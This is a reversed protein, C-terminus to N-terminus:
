SAHLVAAPGAAHASPSAALLANASPTIVARLVLRRLEERHAEPLLGSALLAAAPPETVHRSRPQASLATDFAGRVARAVSQGGQEIAWRVFRYALAAHRAEDDAIRELLKRLTPNTVHAAAEVAELASLTEGICGELVTSVAARELTCADLAGDVPLPGPGVDHGAYHSALSYCIKAHHTEDEMARTTDLLLEPPAGLALLELAFRAFAAISAHEAAAADSWHRALHARLEPSTVDDVLALDLKFDASARRSALRPEGAVLFPRGTVPCAVDQCTSRLGLAPDAIM